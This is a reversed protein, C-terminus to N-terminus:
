AGVAEPLKRARQGIEVAAGRAAEGIEEWRIGTAQCGLSLTLGDEAVGLLADPVPLLKQATQRVIPAVIAVGAAVAAGLAAGKLADGGDERLSEHAVWAGALTHPILLAPRYRAPFVGVKDLFMEGVAAAAWLRRSPWRRSAALFAPGLAIKSGCLAALVMAREFSGNLQM